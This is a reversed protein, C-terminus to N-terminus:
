VGAHIGIKFAAQDKKTIAAMESDLPIYALFNPHELRNKIPLQGDLVQVSSSFIIRECVKNVAIEFLNMNMLVNSNYLEVGATSDWNGYNAFHALVTVGELLEECAQLELLDVELVPYELNENPVKDVALFDYGKNLLLRCVCSGLRGSAGTVLVKM